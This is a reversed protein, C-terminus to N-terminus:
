NWAHQVFLQSRTETGFPWTADFAKRLMPLGFFIGWNSLKMVVMVPM